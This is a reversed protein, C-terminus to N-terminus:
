GIAFYYYTEGSENSQGSASNTSYWEITRGGNTKRGYGYNSVNIGFGNKFQFSETYAEVLSLRNDAGGGGLQFSGNATVGMIKPQFDFTLSNPNSSGYTGTGTYSGTEIQVKAGLQGLATYTYGDSVAPPYANPDPSNVYGHNTVITKQFISTYYAEVTINNSNAGVYSSAYCIKNNYSFYFPVISQWYAANSSTPQSTPTFIEDLVISGNVIKASKGYKLSDMSPLSGTNDKYISLNQWFEYKNNIVDITESTTKWWVYENGLGKQFQSLVNFVDDPVATADLGFLGKTSDALIQQQTYAGEVQEVKTKPYLTDYDTGNFQKMTINKTTAM